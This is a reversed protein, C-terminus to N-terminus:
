VEVIADNYDLGGAGVPIPMQARVLIHRRIEAQSFLHPTRGLSTQNGRPSYDLEFETQLTDLEHLGQSEDQLPKSGPHQGGSEDGVVISAELDFLSRSGTKNLVTELEALSAPRGNGERLRTPLTVTEVATCLM